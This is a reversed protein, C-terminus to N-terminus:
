CKWESSGVPDASVYPLVMKPSSKPTRGKVKVDKLTESLGPISEVLAQAEKFTKNIDKKSM